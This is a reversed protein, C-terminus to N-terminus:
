PRGTPQAGGQARKKNLVSAASRITARMTIHCVLLSDDHSLDTTTTWIAYGNHRGQISHYQRDPLHAPAVAPLELQLWDLLMHSCSM